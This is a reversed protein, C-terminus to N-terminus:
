QKRSKREFPAPRTKREYPAPNKIGLGQAFKNLTDAPYGIRYFYDVLDKKRWLYPRVHPLRRVGYGARVLEAETKPATHGPWANVLDFYCALENQKVYSM